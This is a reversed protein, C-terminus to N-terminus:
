TPKNGYRIGILYNIDAAFEADNQRPQKGSRNHQPGNNNVPQTGPKFQARGESTDGLMFKRAMALWNDKMYKPGSGSESWSKVKEYYFPLNYIGFTEDSLAKIFYDKDYYPSQEFYHPSSPRGSDPTSTGEKKEEELIDIETSPADQNEEGGKNNKKSNDITNNYMPNQDTGGGPKSGYGEPNQDSPDALKSTDNASGDPKSGYTAFLLDMKDLQRYWSQNMERNDPHAEIFGADCLGKMRRYASDKKLRLVPLNDCILKHSVWVYSHGRDVMKKSSSSGFFDRFFDLIVGDIIDITFANDVWAKQNFNLSFKM